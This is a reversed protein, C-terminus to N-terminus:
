KIEQIINRSEVFYCEVSELKGKKNRKHNRYRIETGYLYLQMNRKSATILNWEARLYIWDDKKPKNGNLLSDTIKRVAMLAGQYYSAYMAIHQLNVKIDKEVAMRRELIDQAQAIIKDEQEKNM